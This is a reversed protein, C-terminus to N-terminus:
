PINMPPVVLQLNLNGRAVALHDRPRSELRRRKGFEWKLFHTWDCAGSTKVGGVVWESMYRM